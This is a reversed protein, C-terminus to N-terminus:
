LKLPKAAKFFDAWPDARKLAEELAKSGISFDAPGIGDKVMEFTVPVAVTAKPKGRSSWPAVATSGRGNRLYDVFIRGKRAKKSLVSTYRDPASQEMARAFDHAFTKVADWDARPKLPVVVHFGKGGSTKVFSPLGLADLREKVDLTAARVDEVDLGEDPDLDFIIQDPKEIADLTSGWVHVEVVGFQVLAALGDFDRISLLEEGDEPDSTRIIADHMGKSAHKQFFRQGDVGDPARVLALPRNVVFPEMRPWVKEYHGLLGEKSIGAEPWLLKDPSTLTVSMTGPKRAVAKASGPKPAKAAKAAGDKALVGTEAVVEKAPKDERLGQFSAQRLIGDSTWSRFEIEAVLEPRAWVVKRDKAEPGEIAPKKTKIRDLRKKLDNTIVGSFGTGVRGGYHLKGKENYGVLLSRLGRGAATSPVYGLIVFEQRLTCKSKIWNLSRGSQYPADARKSVVGELGMRCAHALMTQGPTAFHESYLVPSAGETAGVLKGLKAKREALPDGRLDEGDLHLLDFVYFLMRETKGAASLAAQLAAFSAVGKDSLVAVEGDIVADECDLAALTELIARGFKGTWDLGKRTYLAVRGGSVHAQIRYGDFKVEHLWEEGTPPNPRLTALQPEIFDPMVAAAAKRGKAPRAPGTKGAAEPPKSAARKGAAVEDNTRGSKVSRPEEELIDEGPRAFTDDSKILLWNDRKEGRRPKLRVLHWAGNLKHGELDFRIHGKKMGSAPDGEPTWRGEDWVIVSGAGYQGRPINGEFSGYDLPHDEVHVALRKEHPDLSPGRTVAWSWLVGGHELRLDYHLRTADHKHIVFIGGEAKGAGRARKGPPEPTQKFNRKARYTELSDM